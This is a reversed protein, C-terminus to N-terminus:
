HYLVEVRRRSGGYDTSARVRDGFEKLFDVVRMARIRTHEIRNEDADWLERLCGRYLWPPHDEGSIRKRLDKFYDIFSRHIQDKHVADVLHWRSEEDFPEDCCWYEMVIVLGTNPDKKEREPWEWDWMAKLRPSDDARLIKEFRVGCEGCFKEGICRAEFNAGCKLCRYASCGDDTCGRDLLANLM